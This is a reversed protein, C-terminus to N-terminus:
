FNHTIIYISIRHRLRKIDMSLLLLLYHSCSFRCFLFLFLLARDGASNERRDQRDKKDYKHDAQNRATGNRQRNKGIQPQDRDASLAEGILDGADVVHIQVDVSRVLLLRGDHIGVIFVAPKHLIGTQVAGLVPLGDRQVLDVVIDFLRHDGQLVLPKVVMLANVPHTGHANHHIVQHTFVALGLAAGGDRLLQDLVQGAFVLDGKDPFVPLDAVCQRQFAM